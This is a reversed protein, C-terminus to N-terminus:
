LEMHDCRSVRTGAFEAGHVTENSGHCWLKTQSEKNCCHNTGGLWKCFTFLILYYFLLLCGVTATSLGLRTYPPLKCCPERLTEASPEIAAQPQV